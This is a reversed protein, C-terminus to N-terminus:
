RPRARESTASRQARRRGGPPDTFATYKIHRGNRRPRAAGDAPRLARHDDVTKHTFQPEESYKRGRMSGPRSTRYSTDAVILGEQRARIGSADSSEGTNPGGGPPSWSTRGAYSKEARSARRHQGGARFRSAKAGVRPGIGEKASCARWRWHIEPRERQASPSRRRTTVQAESDASCRGFECRHLRGRCSTRLCWRPDMVTQLQVLAGQLGDPM